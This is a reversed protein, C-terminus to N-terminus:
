FDAICIVSSSYLPSYKPEKKVLIKYVKRYVLKVFNLKVRETFHIERIKFGAISVVKSLTYPSFWYRHDSNVIEKSKKAANFVRYSLANPASIVIGKTNHHFKHWIKTLFAVPNDVHEIIEGLIFYDWTDSLIQECPDNIIDSYYVNNFGLKEKVYHIGEGNIDIGICKQASDTLLKHLWINNEIKEEILPLHDVCGVHIIKKEKVFHTLFETRRHIFDKRPTLPIELASSFKEGKLFPIIEDQLKM